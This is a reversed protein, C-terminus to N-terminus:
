MNIHQYPLTSIVPDASLQPTTHRLSLTKLFIAKSCDPQLFLIQIQTPWVPLHGNDGGGTIGNRHSVPILSQGKVTILTTGCFNEAKTEQPSLPQKKNCLLPCPSGGTRSCSFSFIHDFRSFSVATSLVDIKRELLIFL